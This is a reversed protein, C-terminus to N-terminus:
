AVWSVTPALEDEEEFPDAVDVAGLEAARLEAARMAALLDADPVRLIKTSAPAEAEPPHLSLDQM